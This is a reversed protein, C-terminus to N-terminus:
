FVVNGEDDDSLALYKCNKPSCESYGGSLQELENGIVQEEDSPNKVLNEM